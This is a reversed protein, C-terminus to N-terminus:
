PTALNYENECLMFLSGGSHKRTFKPKYFANMVIEREELIRDNCVREALSVCGNQTKTGEKRKIRHNENRLSRVRDNEKAIQVQCGDVEWVGM